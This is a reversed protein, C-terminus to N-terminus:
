SGTTAQSTSPRPSFDPGVVKVTEAMEQNALRVALFIKNFEGENTEFLARLGDATVKSPIVIQAACQEFAMTLGDERNTTAGDADLKIGLRVATDTRFKREWESSRKEVTFWRGSDRFQQHLPQFQAVLRDAEAGDDTTEIRQALEELPGILDARMYLLTSRRTPRAGALFDEFSFDEVSVALTSDVVQSGTSNGTAEPDAVPLADALSREDIPESM